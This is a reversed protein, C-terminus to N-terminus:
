GGIGFLGLVLRTALAKFQAFFSADGGDGGNKTAQRRIEIYLIPQM